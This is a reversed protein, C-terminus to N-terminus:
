PGTFSTTVLSVTLMELIWMVLYRETQFLYLLLSKLRNNPESLDTDNRHHSHSYKRRLIIKVIYVTNM